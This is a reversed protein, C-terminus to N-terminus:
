MHLPLVTKNHTLYSEFTYKVQLGSCLVFFFCIYSFYKHLLVYLQINFCSTKGKLNDCCTWEPDLGHNPICTWQLIWYYDLDLSIFDSMECCSVRCSPLQGESEMAVLLSLTERKLVMSTFNHCISGYQIPCPICLFILIAKVSVNASFPLNFFICARHYTLCFLQHYEAIEKGWNKITIMRGANRLGGSKLAPVPLIFDGGMTPYSRTWSWRLLMFMCLDMSGWSLYGLTKRINASTNALGNEMMDSFDHCDHFIGLSQSFPFIVGM